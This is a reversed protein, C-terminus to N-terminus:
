LASLHFTGRVCRLFPMPQSADAETGDRIRAEAHALVASTIPALRFREAAEIPSIWCVEDFEDSPRAAFDVDGSMHSREVLFFRTDFRRPFWPPTVARAIPVLVEPIPRMSNAAFECWSESLDSFFGPKALFVGTEEYTERIAALALGVARVPTFIAPTEAMLRTMVDAGLPFRPSLNRDSREARGGPFVLHDPMFAHRHGRLGMLFRVEPGSRDFVVLSAADQRWVHPIGVTDAPRGDTAVISAFTPFRTM